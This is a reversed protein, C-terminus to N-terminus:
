PQSILRICNERPICMSEMPKDKNSTVQSNYCADMNYNEELEVNKWDFWQILSGLVLSVTRLGMTAGPCARRGMGFPVFKYNFGEKEGEMADFREPKFKEPEDWLEPGKHIAWANVM